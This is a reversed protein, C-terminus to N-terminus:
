IRMMEILRQSAREPLLYYEVIKKINLRMTSLDNSNINSARKIAEAWNKNKVLICNEMDTLGINYRDPDEIIPIAGRLLAEITRHTWNNGWGMPSICFDSESLSEIFMTPEIGRVGSDGYEIYLSNTDGRYVDNTPYQHFIRMMPIKSLADKVKSLIYKREPPNYNGIFNFKFLRKQNFNMIQAYIQSKLKENWLIQPHPFPIYYIKNQIWFYPPVDLSSIELIVSNANIYLPFSYYLEKLCDKWFRLNVRSLIVIRKANKRWL